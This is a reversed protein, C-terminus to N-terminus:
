APAHFFAARVFDGLAGLSDAAAVPTQGQQRSGDLFTSMGVRFWVYFILGFILVALHAVDIQNRLCISRFVCENM